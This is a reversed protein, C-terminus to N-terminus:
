KLLSEFSRPVRKGKKIRQVTWNLVVVAITSLLMGGFTIITALIQLAPVSSGFVFWALKFISGACVIVISLGLVLRVTVGRVCKTVSAGFLVGLLSASLLVLAVPLSVDGILVYRAGGYFSSLVIQITSTGVALVSPIGLLYIMAPVIVFGGGVGLFGTVVGILFGLLLVIWISLKVGARKFKVLPPLRIAQLRNALATSQSSDPLRDEPKRDLDAKRKISEILTYIGIFIMLLISVSLIAVDQFGARRASGALQVGAEVGLLSPLAMYLALKIDANGHKRHVISGVLSNLFVWVLSTGVALEVPMGLVILAPTVIFGGGVGTFGSLVGISLGLLLLVLIPIQLEPLILIM